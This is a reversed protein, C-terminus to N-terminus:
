KSLAAIASFLAYSGYVYLFLAALISSLSTLSFFVLAFLVTELAWYTVLTRVKTEKKKFFNTFKATTKGIKYSLSDSSDVVDIYPFHTPLLDEILYVDM